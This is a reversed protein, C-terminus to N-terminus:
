RGAICAIGADQDHNCGSMELGAHPCEFLRNELGSCMVNDLLVPGSGQGFASNPLVTAGTHFYIPNHYTKQSLLLLCLDSFTPM